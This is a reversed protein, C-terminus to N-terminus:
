KMNQCRFDALDLDSKQVLKNGQNLEHLFLARLDLLILRGVLNEPHKILQQIVIILGDLIFGDVNEEINPGDHLIIVLFM